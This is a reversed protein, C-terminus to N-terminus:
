PQPARALIARRLAHSPAPLSEDDLVRALREADDRVAAADQSAAVLALLAAREGDPWRAADAGHRDLVDRLRPITAQPEMMGGCRALPSIGDRAGDDRRM